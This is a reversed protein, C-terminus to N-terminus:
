GRAALRAALIRGQRYEEVGTVERGLWPPRAFGAEEAELEIEAFVIGALLGGYVDVTWDRGEHRLHHRTKELIRGACHRELMRRADAAPIPYEFEDRSLGSRPGKVTLTAQGDYFRVRVKRGGAESILGDRLAVSRLVAPKWGDGTVLFKREIETAM